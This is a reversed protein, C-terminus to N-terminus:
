SLALCALATVAAALGAGKRGSFPERLFLFGIAATVVFGMQAIPVMVSAEGTVLSQLTLVFAIGLSLSAFPAYRFTVALPRIGGDAHASFLMALTLFVASQAAIMAFPTSGALLGVKYAFNALGIAGTAVIVRALSSLHVPRAPGPGAPGGLLLWVAVPAICLGAVKLPTLPEGLVLVALAVTVTFSLRFIPANVSISGTRLSQAFNYFGIYSFVGAAVGWLSPLALVPQHTAFAYGNLVPAMFWSQVMVFHHPKVGAGGARKYVLDAVGYSVMAGLACLLAISM